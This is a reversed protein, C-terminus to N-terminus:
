NLLEPALYTYRPVPMSNYLLQYPHLSRLTTTDLIKFTTGVKLLSYRSIFYNKFENDYLLLLGGAM